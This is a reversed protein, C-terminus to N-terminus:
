PIYAVCLHPRRTWIITRVEMKTFGVYVPIDNYLFIEKDKFQDGTIDVIYSCESSVNSSNNDFIELWAHTYFDWNTSSYDGEVYYIPINLKTEDSLYKAIMYCTDGCTGIPFIQFYSHPIKM